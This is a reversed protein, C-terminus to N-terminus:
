MRHGLPLFSALLELASRQVFVNNSDSIAAQLGSSIVHLPVPFLPFLWPEQELESTSVSHNSDLTNESDSTLLAASLLPNKAATSSDAPLAAALQNSKLPNISNSSMMQQEMIAEHRQQQSQEHYEPSTPPSFYVRENKV